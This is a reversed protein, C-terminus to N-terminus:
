TIDRRRTRVLGAVGIAAIWALSVGIAPWYDLLEDGTVTVGDAGDAGELAQFPLYKGAGDWDLVGLLGLLLTEALFIWILTGVLAAVQSHVVAGIALGILAFLVVGLLTAAARKGVQGGLHLEADVLALWPLGVAAVAVLGLLGLFAGALGGALAKAALMRERRAEVLLTPTITGHRFERTVMTIGLILALIAAIGASEVLDLQFPLLSREADEASGTEAAGAAGVLVVSIILFAWGGRTTRVKLLESRVLATM